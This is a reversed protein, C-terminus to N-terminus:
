KNRETLEFEYFWEERLDKTRCLVQEKGIKLVMLWDGNLRHEVVDGKKLSNINM